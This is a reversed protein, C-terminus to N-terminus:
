CNIEYPGRPSESGQGKTIVTLRIHMLISSLHVWAFEEFGLVSNHKTDFLDFVENIFGGDVVASNKKLYSTCLKWRHSSSTAAPSPGGGGLIDGRRLWFGLPLSSCPLTPSFLLSSAARPHSFPPPSYITVM